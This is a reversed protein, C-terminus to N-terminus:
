VRLRGKGGIDCWISGVLKEGEEFCIECILLKLLLSVALLILQM